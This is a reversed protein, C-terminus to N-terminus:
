PRPAVSPIQLISPIPIHVSEAKRSDPQVLSGKDERTPVSPINSEQEKDSRREGLEHSSTRHKLSFKLGNPRAPAESKTRPRRFVPEMATLDAKLRLIALHGNMLEENLIKAKVTLQAPFLVYSLKHLFLSLVAYRM